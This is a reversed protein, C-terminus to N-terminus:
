RASTVNFYSYHVDSHEDVDNLSINICLGYIAFCSGHGIVKQQNVTMPERQSPSSQISICHHCRCRYHCDRHCHCDCHEVIVFKSIDETGRLLSLM